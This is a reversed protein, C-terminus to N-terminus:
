PSLPLSMSPYRHAVEDDRLQAVEVLGAAEEVLGRLGAAVVDDHAAHREVDVVGAVEDGGCAGIGHLPGAVLGLLERGRGAHLEAVHDRDALRALVDTRHERRRCRAGVLRERM